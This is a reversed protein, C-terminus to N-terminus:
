RRRGSRCGSACAASSCGGSASRRASRRPSRRDAPGPDAPPRLEQRHGEPPTRRDAGVYAFAAILYFGIAAAMWKLASPRFRRVGLRSLAERFSAGRRAAIIMPVMVFGVATALQVVVNAWTSLDGNGPRPQRHRAPVSCSGPGWRWCCASSLPWPGGTRTPFGPDPVRGVPAAALNAEMAGCTECTEREVLVRRRMRRRSSRTATTRTRAAIASLWNVSSFRSAVPM